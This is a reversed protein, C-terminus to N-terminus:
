AAALKSAGDYGFWTATWQVAGAGPAHDSCLVRLVGVPLILPVHLLPAFTVTPAESGAPSQESLLDAAIGTTLSYFTGVADATIVTAASLDGASGGSPTHQLKITLSATNPIVTSVQGVLSTLIVRGGTVAFLDTGANQTFGATKAARRGLLVSRMENNKILASM